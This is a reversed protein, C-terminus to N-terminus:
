ANGLAEAEKLLAAYEEPKVESLKGAGHIGLLAKVEATFGDRSKAALVARVAELTIAKVPAPTEPQEQNPEETIVFALRELAKSVEAVKCALDVIAEAKRTELDKDM